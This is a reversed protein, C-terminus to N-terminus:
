KEIIALVEQEDVVLYEDNGDKVVQGGYKSILVIDGLSYEFEVSDSIAVIQCLDQSNETPTVIIGSKTEKLPELRKVVLRKGLPKIKM